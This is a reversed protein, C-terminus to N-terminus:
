PSRLVIQHPSSMDARALGYAELARAVTRGASSDFVGSVKRDELRPDAILLQEPSYRNMETVVDALREEDFIIYNLKGERWHLAHLTDVREILEAGGELVTMASGANLSVEAPPKAVSRPQSAALVRVKGQVLTVRLQREDLRVDFETGVAVVERTGATVVFPRTADKAVEFFAQGRVLTVRRREKSYDTQVSSASNLTIRSGDPLLLLSREGRETSAIRIAPPEVIKAIPRPSQPLQPIPTSRWLVWAGVAALVVAAASGGLFWMRKYEVRRAHERLALIRPDDRVAEVRGWIQEYRAWAHAHTEDARLWAAFTAADTATWRGSRQRAFWKAAEDAACDEAPVIRLEVM